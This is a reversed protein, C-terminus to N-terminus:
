LKTEVQRKLKMNNFLSQDIATIKKKEVCSGLKIPIASVPALSFACVFFVGSQKVKKKIM